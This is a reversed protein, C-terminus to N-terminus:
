PSWWQLMNKIEKEEDELYLESSIIQKGTKLNNLLKEGCACILLRQQNTCKYKLSHEAYNSDNSFATITNSFAEIYVNSFLLFRWLLPQFCLKEDHSLFSYHVLLYASNNLNLNDWSLQTLIKNVEWTEYDFMHEDGPCAYHKRISGKLASSSFLSDLKSVIDNEFPINIDISCTSSLGTVSKPIIIRKINM